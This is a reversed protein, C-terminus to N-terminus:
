RLIHNCCAHISTGIYDIEEASLFSNNNGPGDEMQEVGFNNLSDGSIVNGEEDEFEVINNFHLNKFNIIYNHFTMCVCILRCNNPTSLDLDGRLVRWKTTLRGFAMEIKKTAVFFPLDKTRTWNTLDM